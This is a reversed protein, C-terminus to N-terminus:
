KAFRKQWEKSINPYTALVLESLAKAESENGMARLTQSTRARMELWPESGGPFGKALTRFQQLALNRQSPLTQQIRATRYNWRANKAMAVRQQQMRELGKAEQGQWCLAGIDWLSVHEQLLGLRPESLCSNLLAKESTLIQKLSDTSSRLEAALQPADRLNGNVAQLLQLFILQGRVWRVGIDGVPDTSSRLDDSWQNNGGSLYMWSSAPTASATADVRPMSVLPWVASEPWRSADKLSVCVAQMVTLNDSPCASLLQEQLTTQASSIAERDTSAIGRDMWTEQLWVTMLAYRNFAMDLIPLKNQYVSVNSQDTAQKLRISWLELVDKPRDARVLMRDLRSCADAAQTTDPWTIVIDMLRQRLMAFRKATEDGDQATNSISDSQWISMMAAEPAKAAESYQLAARHFEAQALEPRQETSYIAAIRIAVDLAGAVNQANAASMEAQRLKEIAEQHRKAALLQKAESMLLELKIKDSGDRPTNATSAEAKMSSNVLIAESRQQWYFGFRKGIESKLQLVDAVSVPKQSPSASRAVLNAFHEIALEPSKTWGGADAIWRDAEDLRRLQRNSESAVVAISTGWRSDSRRHGDSTQEIAQKLNTVESIADQARDLLLLANCRSLDFMPRGAWSSSITRQAKDLSVLMETAAAIRETSKEPYFRARVQLLNAQLLIADNALSIWEIAAPANGTAGRQPGNKIQIQLKEVKTLGTRISELSWERLPQRAPVALYASLTRQLLYWRCRETNIAIWAFRPSSENELGVNEIELFGATLLEPRDLNKPDNALKAVLSQMLLLTWRAHADVNNPGSLKQRSRCTEVAIDYLGANQLSEIYAHDPHDWGIQQGFGDAGNVVPHGNVLWVLSTLILLCRQWPGFSIWSTPGGYNRERIFQHLCSSKCSIKASSRQTTFNTDSAIWFQHRSILRQKVIAFELPHSIM